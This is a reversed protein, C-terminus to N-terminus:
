DGSKPSVYTIKITDPFLKTGDTNEIAQAPKGYGRDLIDNAAARQTAAPTEKDKMLEILKKIAEPAHKQALAKIEATAKNKQGPKRGAGARKGGTGAM